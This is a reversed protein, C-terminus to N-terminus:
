SIEIQFSPTVSYSPIAGRKEAGNERSHIDICFLSLIAAHILSIPGEFRNILHAKKVVANPNM